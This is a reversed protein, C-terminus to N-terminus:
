NLSAKKVCLNPITVIEQVFRKLELLRPYEKFDENGYLSIDVSSKTKPKEM